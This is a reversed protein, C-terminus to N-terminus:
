KNKKFTITEYHIGSSTQASQSLVLNATDLTVITFPATTTVLTTTVGNVRTYLNTWGVQNTVSSIAYIATDVLNQLGEAIYLNGYKTFKFYDGASGHYMIGTGNISVTDTVIAWNGVLKTDSILNTSTDVHSSTVPTVKSKSCSFLAAGIFAVFSIKYIIKM